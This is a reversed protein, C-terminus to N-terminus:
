WVSRGGDMSLITGNLYSSADSLMFVITSKYDDVHAMRRLPIRQYINNLFEVSLQDNYIGGPCLANCRVNNVAWYTALYRTLGILGTKVVSYSIPKVTQQEDPLEDDKYLQQDPAIIGLDSSINIISGGNSNKSIAYGFHKACLFAGTLGVAMDKNWVDLDFNELRSFNQEKTATEVKPNNTANNILADIKGFEKQLEQCCQAVQSEKTIDVEVGISKVGYEKTIRCAVEDAQKKSLDLIIPIAKFEAIAEAHKQGLKGAGGTIVIVKNTLDFV